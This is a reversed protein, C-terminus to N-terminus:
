EYFQILDMCEAVNADSLLVRVRLLMILLQFVVCILLAMESLKRCLPWVIRQDRTGVGNLNVRKM